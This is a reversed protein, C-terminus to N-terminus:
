GLRKRWTTQQWVPRLGVSAYPKPLEPGRSGAAAGVPVVVTEIGRARMRAFAELLLARLLPEVQEGPGVALQVVIGDADNWSECIATGVLQNRRCALVCLDSDLRELALREDHFVDLQLPEGDTGRADSRDLLALVQAVGQEDDLTAETVGGPWSTPEFAVDLPRELRWTHWVPRYGARELPREAIRNGAAVSQELLDAGRETARAEVLERLHSGLGRGRARPHVRVEAEPPAVFAYGITEGGSDEAIWADLALDAGPRDWDEIVDALERDSRGTDAVQCATTLVLVAVAEEDTGTPRHLQVGAPLGV